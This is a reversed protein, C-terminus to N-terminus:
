SRGASNFAHLISALYDASDGTANELDKAARSSVFLNGSGDREVWGKEQLINVKRRVTERPIGSYDAVSQINIPTQYHKLGDGRTLQEFTFIEPAWHEPRTRDGIVALVLLLELDGDFAAHLQVLLRTFAKLHQPWIRGFNEKVFLIEESDRGPM